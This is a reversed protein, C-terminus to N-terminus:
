QTMLAKCALALPPALAGGGGGWGQFFGQHDCIIILDMFTNLIIPFIHSNWTSVTVSCQEVICQEFKHECESTSSMM